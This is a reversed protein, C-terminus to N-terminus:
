PGRSAMYLQYGAGPEARTLYLHCGDPSIWNPVDALATNLQTLPIAAGFGDAVSARRAQYIDFDAAGPRTSGFFITLEDVTVVPNNETATTILDVGSVPTPTAFAGGTKATRYLDLNGSTDNALYMANGDAVLYPDADNLAGNINAVPKLESFDVAANPRTALAIRLANATSTATMSYLSLGDATIRPTRENGPTNVGPAPTINGFPASISPRTAFYIDYGGMGGPRTSSFYITLEDASLEAHEDDLDTNLSDLPDAKGFDATPNCRPKAADPAADIELGADPGGGAVKGCAAAGIAGCLV